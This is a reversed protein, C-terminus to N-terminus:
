NVGIITFYAENEKKVLLDIHSKFEVINPLEDKLFATFVELDATDLISIELTETSKWDTKVIEPYIGKLLSPFGKRSFANSLERTLDHLFPVLAEDDTNWQEGIEPDQWIQGVLEDNLEVDYVNGNSAVLVKKKGEDTIMNFIYREQSLDPENSKLASTSRNKRKKILLLATLSFGLIASLVLLSSNKKSFKIVQKSYDEIESNNM